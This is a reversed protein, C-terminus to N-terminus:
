RGAVNQRQFGIADVVLTDGEWRGVSDGMFSAELDEPHKADIQIVRFVHFLELLMVVTKPTQVIQM